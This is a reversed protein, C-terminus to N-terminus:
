CTRRRCTSRPRWPTRRRLAPQQDARVARADVRPHVPVARRPDARRLPQPLRLGGAARHPHQGQRLGRPAPGRAPRRPGRRRGAADPPGDRRAALPRAAPRRRRLRARGAQGPQGDASPCCGSTAPTRTPTCCAPAPRAPSCSGCWCSATTTASRRPAAARDGVGALRAVGDVRQGAGARRRRGGRAGRDRPRRPVRRRVGAQAEAELRYDLEDAARAQVEEVLPKIDIGPFVPAMGKAVRAIQRLDGLLADAAGPYQVKIAVERGDHWRGRHVQGISAAAAATEDMEVLQDRWDPGLADEIEEYAMAAPM